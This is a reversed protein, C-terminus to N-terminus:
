PPVPRPGTSRAALDRLRSPPVIWTVDVGPSPLANVSSSGAVSSTAPRGLVVVVAGREVGTAGRRDDQQGLAVGGARREGVLELRGLRAPGGAISSRLSMTAPSRTSSTMAGVSSPPTSSASGARAPPKLASM